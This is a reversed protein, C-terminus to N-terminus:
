FTPLDNRLPPFGMTATRKRQEGCIAWLISPFSRRRSAGRNCLRSSTRLPKGIGRNEGVREEGSVTRYLKRRENVIQSPEAGRLGAIQHLFAESLSDVGAATALHTLRLAASAHWVSTIPKANRSYKNSLKIGPHLVGFHPFTKRRLM